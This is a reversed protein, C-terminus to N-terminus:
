PFKPIINCYKTTKEKIFFPNVKFYMGTMGIVVAVIKLIGEIPIKYCCSSNFSLTNRWRSNKRHSDNPLGRTITVRQCMFYRHFVAWTWWLGFLGFFTGPVVHGIFSGM